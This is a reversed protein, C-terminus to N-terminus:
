EAVSQAWAAERVRAVFRLKGFQANEAFEGFLGPFIIHLHHDFAGPVDREVLDLQLHFFFVIQAVFRREIRETRQDGIDRRAVVVNGAGDARRHDAPVSSRHEAVDRRFLM